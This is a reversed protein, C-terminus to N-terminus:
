VRILDHGKILCNSSKVTKINTNEHPGWIKFSKPKIRKRLERAQQNCFLGRGGREVGERFRRMKMKWKKM